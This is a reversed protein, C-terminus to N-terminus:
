TAQVKSQNPIKINYFSQNNNQVPEEEVAPLHNNMTELVPSQVITIPLPDPEGEYFSQIDSDLESETEIDDITFPATENLGTLIDRLDNSEEVVDEVINDMSDADVSIGGVQKHDQLLRTYTNVNDAIDMSLLKNNKNSKLIRMVKAHQRIQRVQNMYYEAKKKHEPRNTKKYLGHALKGNNLCRNEELAMEELQMTDLHVLEQLRRKLEKKASKVDKFSCIGMAVTGKRIYVKQIYIYM